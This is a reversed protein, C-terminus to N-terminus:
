RRSNGAGILWSAVIVEVVHERMEIWKATAISTKPREAVSCAWTYM